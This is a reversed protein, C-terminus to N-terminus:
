FFSAYKINRVAENSFSINNKVYASNSTTSRLRCVAQRWVARDKAVAEIKKYHLTPWLGSIEMCSTDKAVAEIKRGSYRFGMM